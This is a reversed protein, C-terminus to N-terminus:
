ANVRYLYRSIMKWLNNEMGLMNGPIEENERNLHNRTLEGRGHGFYAEEEEEGM